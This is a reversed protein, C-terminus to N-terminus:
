DNSLQHIADNTPEEGRLYEIYDKYFKEKGEGPFDLKFQRIAERMGAGALDRLEQKSLENFEAARKAYLEAWGGIESLEGEDPQIM